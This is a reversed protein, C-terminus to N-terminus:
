LDITLGKALKAKDARDRAREAMKAAIADTFLAANDARVKDLKAAQEDDGLGTFTAWEPSKAGWRAKLAGRVVMRGVATEEDVGGGAVRSSWEGALIADVAKQMSANAEDLTTAGSAADAVKQRLGHMALREVIDSSLDGLPVAVSALWSKDRPGKTITDAGELTITHKTM